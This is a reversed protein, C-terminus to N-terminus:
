VQQRAGVWRETDGISVDLNTSLYQSQDKYRLPGNLWLPQCIIEIVEM